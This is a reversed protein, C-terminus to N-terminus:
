IAILPGMTLFAKEMSKWRRQVAPDRPMLQYFKANEMDAVLQGAMNVGKIPVLNHEVKLIAGGLSITYKYEDITRKGEGDVRIRQSIGMMHSFSRRYVLDQYPSDEGGIRGDKVPIELVQVALIDMGGKGDDQQRNYNLWTTGEVEGPMPAGDKILRKMIERVAADGIKAPQLREQLTSKAKQMDEMADPPAVVQAKLQVALLTMLAFTITKM